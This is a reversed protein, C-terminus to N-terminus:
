VSKIFARPFKYKDLLIWLFEHNVQDFAKELDLAILLGKFRKTQQSRTVINRLLKLNTICSKEPDCAAQGPGLLKEMLPQIRNMLIKSFLKYDCNLMSIPRRNSIENIDGKKPILYIIGESFGAPPPIGELLYMNFLQVLETKIQDKYSNYFEYTLGDPGPSKKKASQRLANELEETTIPKILNLQELASLSKNVHELIPEVGTRDFNKKEFLQQFHYELFTKLTSSDSTVTGNIRLKLTNSSYSQNLRSSIQYFGLKEEEHITNPLYKLRYNQLRRNEIEMLKTKVFAMEDPCSGGLMMTDSIQKLCNYLFSKERRIEENIAFSEAKFFSTIKRKCNINWWVNFNEHFCNQLKLRDYMQVFKAVIEPVDILSPNVKWFGRGQFIMCSTDTVVYKVIVAHHDSFATPHVDISKASKLFANPCYIRDLRSKSTGRFFTFSTKKNLIKELDFLQLSSVLTQLGKCFNQVNSNSDSTDLICNFDGLLVNPLDSSLHPIVDETFLLERQKRFNTGSHAYINIFNIKDFVISSIRGNPNLLISKPDINKRILIATGKNTTSINVFAHHSAIFSFCEFSVEQLFAVDIDNNWIFDRLLAKKVATGIANINLTAVKRIPNM